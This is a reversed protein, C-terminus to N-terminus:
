KWLDDQHVTRESDLTRDVNAQVRRWQLFEDADFWEHSELPISHAQTSDLLQVLRWMVEIKEPSLQLLHQEIDSIMNQTIM